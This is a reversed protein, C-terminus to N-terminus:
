VELIEAEKREGIANIDEILRNTLEQTEKEGRELDDESILKEQEFDRMDKITDRRINRVAVRAEEVRNKVMKVLDRRREENLPPLVLRIVKGDNQPTLGLASALIAREIDKMTAPDFPRILLMRPEPVGINALQNLPTLVGYYDVTLKEVLAPNARGTRIASLDEELAQLTNKMRMEAEKLADQIM